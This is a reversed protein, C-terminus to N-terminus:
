LTKLFAILDTKDSNNMRWVVGTKAPSGDSKMEQDLFRIILSDTYPVSHKSPDTLSSYQIICEPIDTGKDGHCDQCGRISKHQSAQKDLLADGNKNKGTRYITEGNTPYVKDKNCASLILLLLTVLFFNKKM